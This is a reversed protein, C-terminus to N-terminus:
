LKCIEKAIPIDAPALNLQLIEKIPIWSLQHHVNAVPDGELIVTCYCFLEYPKGNVKFKSSSILNSVETDVGLEEMLERRLAEQHSEGDEVKGGPFEWKGNLEEDTRQALLVTGSQYIIAGVVDQQTKTQM